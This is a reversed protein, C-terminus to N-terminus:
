MKHVQWLYVDSWWFSHVSSTLHPMQPRWIGCTLPDNAVDSLRLHWMHCNRTYSIPFNSCFFPKRVRKEKRSQVSFDVFIQRTKENRKGNQKAHIKSLNYRTSCASYACPRGIQMKVYILYHPRHSLFLPFSNTHECVIQLKADHEPSCKWLIFTKMLNTTQYIKLTFIINNSKSVVIMNTPTAIIVIRLIIAKTWVLM